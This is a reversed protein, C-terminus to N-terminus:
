SVSYNRRAIMDLAVGLRKNLVDIEQDLSSIQTGANALASQVADRQAVADAMQAMVAETAQQLEKNDDM